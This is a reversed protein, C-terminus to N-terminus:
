CVSASHLQVVTQARWLLSHSHTLSHTNHSHRPDVTVQKRDFGKTTPRWLLADSSRACRHLQMVAHALWLLLGAGGSSDWERASGKCLGWDPVCAEDFGCGRDRVAVFAVDAGAVRGATVTVTGCTTFAAANGLLTDLVIRLRGADGPIPPLPYLHTTLRVGTRM